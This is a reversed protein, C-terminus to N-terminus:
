MGGEASVTLQKSAIVQGARRATISVRWDGGSPLNGSGEYVGGGKDTLNFPVTKGPMGMSPMGPMVFVVQVQAGAIGKGQPDTLKVQFTNSGKRPPTPISSFAVNNQASPAAAGGGSALPAPPLFSGVAAQLQSESDILFNASTVIRDGAKLGKLIITSDGVQPGLVVDRPQLYGGGRNIFAIQQTGAQFVATTPVVLPRGMPIELDVNVFMGPRLLLGPNSFVLRVRSTRTSMDVDPYIFDVRGYFTRGPYSDVTLTAPEGVRVRGLDNQFVEAYVWVTSFDAVTYLRTAPQVYMNPLANRETIFGSAPSDIELYQQVQGARELRAIERAPLDWQRLRELTARVLSRAGEAVGPVTSRALLQQNQTALLYERETTVLDQSYITFLPEGKKVYQYNANAFVQQIWGSFRTQVYAQKREDVAVNGVFRIDDHIIKREVTGTTVGISQLRQPSLQLPALAPEAQASQAAASATAQKAGKAAVEAVHTISPQPRAVRSHWWWAGLGALLVLNGALAVLFAIRYNKM